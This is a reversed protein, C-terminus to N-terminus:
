KSRKKTTTKRTTTTKRRPPTTKAKKEDAKTAKAADEFSEVNVSRVDGEGSVRGIVVARKGDMDTGLKKGTENLVVQYTVRNVSVLAVATVAGASDRTAKVTGYLKARSGQSPPVRKPESKPESGATAPLALLLYLSALCCAGAAAITARKM